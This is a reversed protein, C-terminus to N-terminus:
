RKVGLLSVRWSLWYLPLTCLLSYGFEPLVVTVFTYAPAHGLYVRLAWFPLEYLLLAIAAMLLAPLLSRTFYSTCLGGALAGAFCLAPIIFALADGGLYALLGGILGIVAGFEASGMMAVCVVAVPMLLPFVGLVPLRNCVTAQLVLAACLLVGWLAWRAFLIRNRYWM